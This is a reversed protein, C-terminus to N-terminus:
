IPVEELIWGVASRWMERRLPHECSALDWWWGVVGGLGRLPVAESGARLPTSHTGIVV